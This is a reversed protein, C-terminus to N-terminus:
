AHGGVEAQANGPGHGGAAAVPDLFPHHNEVRARGEERFPPAPAGHPIHAQRRQGQLYGVQLIVSLTEVVFLGGVVVLLLEQKCLIAIFGLTGGISLSGVDGM